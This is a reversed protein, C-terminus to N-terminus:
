MFARMKLEELTSYMKLGEAYRIQAAAPVERGEAESMNAKAAGNTKFGNNVFRFVGASTYQTISFRKEGQQISVNSHRLIASPIAFTSGRPFEIVLRLDWLILHGGKRYDYWGLATIFCWGWALNLFDLHPFTVTRPGFNFTVCAFVCSLLPVLLPLDEGWKHLRKMTRLYYGYLKPAYMKFLVPLYNM